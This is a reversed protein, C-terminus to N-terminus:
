FKKTSFKKPCEPAVELGRLLIIGKFHNFLINGLKKCNQLMELIYVDRIYTHICLIYNINM